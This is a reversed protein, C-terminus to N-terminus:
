VDLSITKRFIIWKYEWYGVMPEASDVPCFGSKEKACVVFSKCIWKEM